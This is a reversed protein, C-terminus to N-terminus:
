HVPLSKIKINVFLCLNEVSNVHSLLLQYSKHPFTLINKSDEVHKSSRHVSKFKIFRFVNSKIHEHNKGLEKKDIHLLNKRKKFKRKM